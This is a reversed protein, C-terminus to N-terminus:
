GIVVRPVLVQVTVEHMPRRSTNRRVSRGFHDIQSLAASEHPRVPRCTGPETRRTQAPPQVASTRADPRHQRDADCMEDRGRRVLEVRLLAILLRQQRPPLAGVTAWLDRAADDAAVTRETDFTSDPNLPEEVMPDLDHRSAKRLSSLSERSATVALWGPLAEPDRIAHVNQVLRLWTTQVVDHVDAEQLRFSRAVSRLLGEYKKILEKWALQDGQAARELLTANGCGTAASLYIQAEM